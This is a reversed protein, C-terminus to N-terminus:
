ASEDAYVPINVNTQFWRETAGVRSVTPSRLTVGSVTVARMQTVVFDALEDLAKTGVDIPVFLQIMVVATQRFRRSGVQAASVQTSGGFVVHFRAWPKDDPKMFPANEYQVDLKKPEEVKDHFRRRVVNSITTVLTSM